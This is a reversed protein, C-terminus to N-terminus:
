HETPYTYPRVFETSKLVDVETIGKENMESMKRIPIGTVESFYDAWKIYLDNLFELSVQEM